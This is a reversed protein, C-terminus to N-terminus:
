DNLEKARKYAAEVADGLIKDFKTEDLHNLAVETTGGKSSIKKILEDSSDGNKEFLRAAGLFTGDAIKRAQEEDFGMDVAKIRLARNLYYYYAPGSGSLATIKDIDDEKDVEVESGLSRLIASVSAREDESVDESAYWGSFAAGVKLPLNPMVRVVKMSGLGKQIKEVSVGAMISIVLKENLDIDSVLVDFGQPKVAILVSDCDAVKAAVDDDKDCGVVEFDSCCLADFIAQGMNGMGIICIKKM